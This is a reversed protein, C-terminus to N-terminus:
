NAIFDSYNRKKNLFIKIVVRSYFRSEKERNYERITFLMMNNSFFGYDM